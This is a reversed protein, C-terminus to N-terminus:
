NSFFTCKEEYYRAYVTQEAVICQYLHETYYQLTTYLYSLKQNESEEQHADFLELLSDVFYRLGNKHTFKTKVEEKYEGTEAEVQYDRISRTYIFFLTNIDKVLSELYKWFKRAFEDSDIDGFLDEEDHDFLYSNDVLFEEIQNCFTTTWLTLEAPTGFTSNFPNSGLDTDKKKMVWRVWKDTVKDYINYFSSQPFTFHFTYREAWQHRDEPNAPSLM